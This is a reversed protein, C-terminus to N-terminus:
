VLPPPSWIVAGDLLERDGVPEPLRVIVPTEPNAGRTKFGIDPTVFVRLLLIDGGLHLDPALIRDHARKGGAISQESVLLRLETDQVTLEYTPDLRWSSARIRGRAARVTRSSGVGVCTWHRGEHRIAATHLAPPAGYGFLVEDAERALERWGELSPEDKAGRRLRPRGARESAALKIALGRVAPDDPDLPPGGDAGTMRDITFPLGTGDSVLEPARPAPEPVVVGAKAWQRASPPKPDAM